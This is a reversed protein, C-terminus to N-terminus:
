FFRSVPGNALGEKSSELEPACAAAFGDVPAHAVRAPLIDGCLTSLRLYAKRGFTVIPIPTLRGCTPADISLKSKKFSVMEEVDYRNATNAYL